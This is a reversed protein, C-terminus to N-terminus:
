RVEEYCEDEVHLEQCELMWDEEGEEHETSALKNFSVSVVM